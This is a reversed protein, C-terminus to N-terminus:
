RTLLGYRALQARAATPGQVCEARLGAARAGDVNLQNDDFFLISDAPLTLAGVVHDFIERDPKILGLEHSLFRTPFLDALRQADTQQRWHLENTNSLCAVAVSSAAAEVLEEAGDILGRPWTLFREVFEGSSLTLEFEEVLGRAFAETSCRGREYDRVWHSSLWRAWVRTDDPENIMDGFDRVGGLGVIVGGLDFVVCQISM